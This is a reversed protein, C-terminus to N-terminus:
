SRRKSTKNRRKSASVIKNLVLASLVMAGNSRLHRITPVKEKTGSIIEYVHVGGSTDHWRRRSVNAIDIAHLVEKGDESGLPLYEIKIRLVM